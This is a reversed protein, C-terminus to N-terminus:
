KKLKGKLAAIALEKKNVYKYSNAIANDLQIYMNNQENAAVNVGLVSLFILILVIYRKM